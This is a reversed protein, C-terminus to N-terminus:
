VLDVYTIPRGAKTKGPVFKVKVGGSKTLDLSAAVADGDYADVWGTIIDKLVKGAWLFVGNDEDILVPILEGNKWYGFGTITVGEPYRAMLEAPKAAARGNLDPYGAASIAKTNTNTHESAIAKFDKM